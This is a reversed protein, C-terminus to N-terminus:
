ISLAYDHDTDRNVTHDLSGLGTFPQNVDDIACAALNRLDTIVRLKSWDLCAVRAHDLDVDL